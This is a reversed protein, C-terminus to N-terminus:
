YSNKMTQYKYPDSAPPNSKKTNNGSALFNLVASAANGVTGAANTAIQAKPSLAPATNGGGGAAPASPETPFTQNTRADAIAQLQLNMLANQYTNYAATNTSNLTNNSNLFDNAFGAQAVGNAYRLNSDNQAGIGQGGINRAADAEHQAELQQGESRQLQQYGGTLNTGDVSGDQNYGATNYLQARQANVNDVATNYADNAAVAQEAYVPANTSGSFDMTAASLGGAPTSGPTTTTGVPAM